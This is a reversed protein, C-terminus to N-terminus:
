PVPRESNAKQLKDRLQSLPGQTPREWLTVRSKMDVIAKDYGDKYGTEYSNSFSYDTDCQDYGNRFGSEYGDQYGEEFGDSHGKAYIDEPEPEVEKIGDTSGFGGRNINSDFHENNVRKLKYDKMKEQFRMQVLCTGKHILGSKIAYFRYGIFDNPGRYSDEIVGFGSALLGTKELTSSRPVIIAEYGDPMDLRLDFEIKVIDGSTYYFDCPLPIDYWGGKKSVPKNDEFQYNLKIEPM